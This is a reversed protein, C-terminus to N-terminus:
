VTYMMWLNMWGDDICIWKDDMSGDMLQEDICRGDMYDMLEILEDGDVRIWRDGM